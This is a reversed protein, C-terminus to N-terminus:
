AAVKIRGVVAEVAELIEGSRLVRAMIGMDTFLERDQAM